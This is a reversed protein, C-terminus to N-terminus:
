LGLQVGGGGGSKETEMAGEEMVIWDPLLPVAVRVSVGELPNLEATVKLQEPRGAPTVHPKEGDVAVGEPEATEVVTVSWAEDEAARGGDTGSSDLGNMGVTTSAAVM